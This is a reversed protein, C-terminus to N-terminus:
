GSRWSPFEQFMKKVGCLLKRGQRPHPSSPTQASNPIYVPAATTSFLISPIWFGLFLVAVPGLLAVGSYVHLSFLFMRQFLCTCGLTWLLMIELGLYPPWRLAPWCVVSLSPTTPRGTTAWHTLLGVGHEHHRARSNLIWCQWLQPMYNMPTAPIQHQRPQPM